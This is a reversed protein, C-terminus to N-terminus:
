PEFGAGASVTGFQQEINGSKMIPTIHIKLAGTTTSSKSGQGDL